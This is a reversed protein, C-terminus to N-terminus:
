TSFPSDPNSSSLWTITINFRGSSSVLKQRARKV